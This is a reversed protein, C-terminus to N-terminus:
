RCEADLRRIKLARFWAEDHHHQLVIPSSRKEAPAMEYEVVKSGNLWHEARLGCVAIRGENWEGADRLPKGSSPAIKGYLAAASTEARLGDRHAADDLIQYEQGRSSHVRHWWSPRDNWARASHWTSSGAVLLLMAVAIKPGRRHSRRFLLGAILIPAVVTLGIQGLFRPWPSAGRNSYFVGSNGGPSIKWEFALEFNDYSATTALCPAMYMPAARLAGDRVEWAEHPFGIGRYTTWGRTTKGDFLPEWDQGPSECAFVLVLLLIRGM